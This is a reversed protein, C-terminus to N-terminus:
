ENHATTRPDHTALLETAAGRLDPPLAALRERATDHDLDTM